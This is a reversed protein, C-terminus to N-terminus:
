PLALGDGADLSSGAWGPYRGNFREREEGAFVDVTMGHGLDTEVGLAASSGRSGPQDHWRPGQGTGVAVFARTNGGILGSDLRIASNRFGGSGFSQSVVGGAILPSPSLWGPGSPRSVAAQPGAPAPELSYDKPAALPSSAATAADPGAAPSTAARAAPWPLQITLLLVGAALCRQTLSGRMGPAAHM